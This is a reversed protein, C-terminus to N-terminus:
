SRACGGRDRPDLGAPSDVAISATSHRTTSTAVNPADYATTSSSCYRTRGRRATNQVRGRGHRRDLVALGGSVSVGGVRLPVWSFTAGHGVDEFEGGLVLLDDEAVVGAGTQARDDREVAGREAGTQAAGAEVGVRAGVLRQAVHQGEGTPHGVLVRQGAEVEAAALGDDDAVRRGRLGLRQQAGVAAEHLRQVTAVEGGAVDAGVGQVHVVDGALAVEDGAAREGVAAGAVGRHERRVAHELAHAGRGLGEPALGGQGTAGDADGAHALDAAVEHPVQGLVARRDDHGVDVGGGHLPDAILVGGHSRDGGGVGQDGLREVDVGGVGQAAREGVLDDLGQRAFITQPPALLWSAWGPTSFRRSSRPM